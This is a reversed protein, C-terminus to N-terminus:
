ARRRIIQDCGVRLRSHSCLLFSRLVSPRSEQEVVRCAERHDGLDKPPSSATSGSKVDIMMREIDARMIKEVLKRGLLPKIHHTIRGRDAKLTSAKKHTAGEALYLDSLEAVTM